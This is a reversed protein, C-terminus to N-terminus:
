EIQVMLKMESERSMQNMFDHYEAYETKSVERANLVCRSMWIWGNKEPKWEAEFCGFRSDVRRKEEAQSFRFGVPLIFRISDSDTWRTLNLLPMIRKEPPEGDFSVSAIRPRVVLRNGMRRSYYKLLAAFRVSLVTDPNSLGYFSLSHVIVDGAEYSLKHILWERQQQADMSALLSRSMFAVNGTQDLSGCLRLDRNSMIEATAKLRSTNEAAASVPIRVLDGGGPKIMLALTGELNPPPDLFSAADSTCELWLTDKQMPVVAICHNFQSEPFVPDVAGDERTLVLAPFADVGAARLLTVLYVSLDKCDGYRAAHIQDVPHPRLGDMGLYIQVYRFQSQVMRYLTHIRSRIDADKRVRALEPVDATLVTQPEILRHIWNGFTNWSENSCRLGDLHFVKPHIRVGTQFAAEPAQLYEPVFRKLKTVSWRCHKRGDADISTFPGVADGANTYDFPFPDALVLDLDAKEVDMREQPDWEDLFLASTLEYEKLLRVRYPLVPYSLEHYVTKHENYVSEFSLTSEKIDKKDLKRLVRGTSDSIVAEMKQLRAFRTGVFRDYGFVKDEEKAVIIDSEERCSLKEAGSASVSITIRTLSNLVRSARWDAAEAPRGLLILAALLGAAAKSRSPLTM